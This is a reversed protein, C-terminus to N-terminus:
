DPKMTQGTRDQHPRSNWVRESRVKYLRLGVDSLNGLLLQAVWHAYFNFQTSIRYHVTTSLVTTDGNPVLTFSTDLVDFYHGGIVVHDDLANPPFSDPAFRYTWRLYREPQWDQIIEDFHVQKGWRSERVMGRPTQRTTGSMPMPVGIRLALADAMEDPRIAEIHNLQHWVVSTPASVHVTRDIAGLGTPTPIYSGFGVVLIPLAAFSYLTRRPWNTLRCVLGMALGGIGGLVAFMPVIVLACIWGEIFLLLTGAVFLSNALAPGLVYYSWRRRRQREALYVTLMGVVLPATFIFVGAMASWRSGGHGSFMLRLLVGTVAGAIVPYRKLMPLPRRARSWASSEHGGRDSDGADRDPGEKM